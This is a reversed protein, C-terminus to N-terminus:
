NPHAYPIKVSVNKSDFKWAEIEDIYKYYEVVNDKYSIVFEDNILFADKVNDACIVAITRSNKEVEFNTLQEAPKDNIFIAVETGRLQTALNALNCWLRCEPANSYGLLTGNAEAIAFALDQIENARKLADKRNVLQIQKLFAGKDRRIITICLRPTRRQRHM